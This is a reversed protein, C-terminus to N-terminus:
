LEVLRKDHFVFRVTFVTQTPCHRICLAGDIKGVELTATRQSRTGCRNQVYLSTDGPFGTEDRREITVCM